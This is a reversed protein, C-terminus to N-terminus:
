FSPACQFCVQDKTASRGLRHDIAPHKKLGHGRRIFAYIKDVCFFKFYVIIITNNLCGWVIFKTVMKDFYLIYGIFDCIIM